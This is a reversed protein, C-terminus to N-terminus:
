ASHQQKKEAMRVNRPMREEFVVQVIWIMNSPIIMSSISISYLIYYIIYIVYLIYCVIYLMCYIVYLIYCVIYLMCYIYLMYLIYCVIYFM